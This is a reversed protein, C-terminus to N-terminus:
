NHYILSMLIPPPLSNIYSIVTSNTIFKGFPKLQTNYIHHINHLHPIYKSHFDDLQKTKKIYCCVYNTYLTDTILHIQDRFISFKKKYESYYKLYEGVKGEKRLCIYTYQLEPHNGKLQKVHEYTPNIIKTREGTHKNFLMVGSIYYPSNMSCYTNILDAYTNFNYIKPIQVTSGMNQFYTFFPTLEISKVTYAGTIEYVNTLYLKPGYVPSVIRNEPHQIVFSYCYKTPLKHLQLNCAMACEIFLEKFTKSPINSKYFTNNAGIINRTAVEFLLNDPDNPNKVFFLNVMTGEVYESAEINNQKPYKNIFIDAPISKPPSFSVINNSYNEISCIISRCMGYTPIDNNKLISKDYTIHRYRIHTNPSFTEKIKFMKYKNDSELNNISPMEICNHLNPVKKLDYEYM